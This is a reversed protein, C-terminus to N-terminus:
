LLRFLQNRILPRGLSDRRILFAECFVSPPGAGQPGLALPGSGGVRFHGKVHVLLGGDQLPVSGQSLVRERFGGHLLCLFPIRRVDLM